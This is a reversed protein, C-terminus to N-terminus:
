RFSCLSCKLEFTYNISIRKLQIKAGSNSSSLECLRLHFTLAIFFFSSSFCFLQLAQVTQHYLVCLFLLSFFLTVRLFFSTLYMLRSTNMRYQSHQSYFSVSKEKSARETCGNMLRLTTFNSAKELVTDSRLLKSEIDIRTKKTNPRLFM